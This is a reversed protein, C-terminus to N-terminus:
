LSAMYYLFRPQCVFPFVACCLRTDSTACHLNRSRSEYLPAKALPNVACHIRLSNNSVRRLFQQVGVATHLYRAIQPCMLLLM